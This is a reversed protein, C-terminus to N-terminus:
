LYLSLFDCICYINNYMYIFVAKPKMLLASPVFVQLPYKLIIM